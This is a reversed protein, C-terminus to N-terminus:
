PSPCPPATKPKKPPRRPTQPDAPPRPGPATGPARLRLARDCRPPTDPDHAVLAVAAPGRRAIARLLALIRLRDAPPLAAAPEDALLIPPRLAVARAIAVRAAEGGSLQPPRHSLRDGLGIARLCQEAQARARRPAIGHLLLPLAANELATLEPLLRPAQFVLGIARQRLAALARPRLAAPDQGLIRVEGRDPRMLTGMIMLLTTKGAGSPGTIATITGRPLDLDIGRLVPVDAYGKEVGRLTLYPATSPLADPVPNTNM